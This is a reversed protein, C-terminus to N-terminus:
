SSPAVGAGGEELGGAEREQGRGEGSQEKRKEEKQM